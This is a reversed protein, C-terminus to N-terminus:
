PAMIAAALTGRKGMLVTAIQRMRESGLQHGPRM